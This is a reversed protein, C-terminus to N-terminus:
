FLSESFENFTVFDANLGELGDLMTKFDNFREESLDTAHNIDTSYEQPHIIIVCYNNKNLSDECESVVENAPVYEKTYYHYTEVNGSVEFIGHDKRLPEFKASLVKFYKSIIQISDASVFNYPPIYTVPNVKIVEQIKTKGNLLSEETITEDSEDHVNGHQAIEINPNKRIGLLYEQMNKDNELHNPIVGLTISVNRSIVEDVLYPTPVSYARVDDMRLIIKRQNNTTYVSDYEVIDKGYVKEIIGQKINEFSIKEIKAHNVSYLVLMAGLITLIAFMFFGKKILRKKSIM